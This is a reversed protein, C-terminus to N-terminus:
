ATTEKRIQFGFRPFHVQVTGARPDTRRLTVSDPTLGVLTGAVPDSGYDTAFVSVAQGADFGLGPQVAVPAHGAAGAAVAIAETSRMESRQHHGIALLRALWPGIAPYDDLLTAVPTAQRIFWLCHGVSFDAISPAAGFLWPGGQALQANLAALQAKLQATGDALTARPANGRMAARDAAFGKLQEPPLHGLIAAVGAPQMAWAVAPGFMLADAWQALLPALPAAAPFLTPTPQIQELVRAILATDCYIDAGIQLVPTKRYGGTLAVVDPKPMVPPIQVSRWPLQKFGLMLRAKEAFPSMDYHHLIIEAM